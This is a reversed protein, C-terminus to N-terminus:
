TKIFCRRCGGEEDEESFNCFSPLSLVELEDRLQAQSKQLSTIQQRLLEKEKESSIRSNAFEEQM